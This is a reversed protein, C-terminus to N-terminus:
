PYKDPEHGGSDCHFSWVLVKQAETFGLSAVEVGEVGVEVPSVRLAPLSSVQDM